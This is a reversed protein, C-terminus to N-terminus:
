AELVQWAEPQGALRRARGLLRWAGISLLRQPGIALADAFKRQKVAALFWHLGLYDHIDALSPVLLRRDPAIAQYIREKILANTEMRQAFSFRYNYAGAWITRCALCDNLFLADGYRAIRIWSDIDDCNADLSSDWGGSKIFAERKVAVQVPTGFPVQELFMGPHIDVQPVMVLRGEGIPRTRRLETGDETVQAAQASIIAADPHRDIAGQMAEVCTLVLYDDDDLFKVWDGSAVTVGANVAKSHGQNTVFRHYVLSAGPTMEVQGAAMQSQLATMYAETGDTSCDDVVVVECPMTQRLGSEISRKLLDVRNYTTILISFTM